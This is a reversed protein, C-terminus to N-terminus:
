NLNDLEGGLNKENLEEAVQRIRLKNRKSSDLDDYEKDLKIRWNLNVFSLYM